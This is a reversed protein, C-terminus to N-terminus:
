AVSMHDYRVGREESDKGTEKSGKRKKDFTIPWAYPASEDADEGLLSFLGIRIGGTETIYYTKIHGNESHRKSIM